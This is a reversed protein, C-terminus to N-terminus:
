GTSGPRGFIKDLLSRPPLRGLYFDAAARDDVRIHRVLWNNFFVLTEAPIGEGALYRAKAQDVSAIFQAHARQHLDCGPYASVTMLMEEDRFHKITYEELRRFIRPLAAQKGPDHVAQWLDHVLVFLQRHQEDIDLVGLRYDESWESLRPEAFSDAATM